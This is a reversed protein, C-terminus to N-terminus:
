TFPTQDNFVLGAFCELQVFNVLSSAGFLAFVTCSQQRDVTGTDPYHIGSAVLRLIHWCDKCDDLSGASLPEVKAKRTQQKIHVPMELREAEAASNQKHIFRDTSRQQSRQRSGNGCSPAREHM